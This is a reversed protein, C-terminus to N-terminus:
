AGSGGRPLGLILALVDLFSTMLFRKPQSDITPSDRIEAKGVVPQTAVQSM